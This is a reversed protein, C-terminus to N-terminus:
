NIKKGKALQLFMKQDFHLQVHWGGNDKEWATRIGCHSALFDFMEKLFYFYPSRLYFYGTNAIIEKMVYNQNGIVVQTEWHRILSPVFITLSFLFSNQDLRRKFNTGYKLWLYFVSSSPMLHYMHTKITLLPVVFYWVSFLYQVPPEQRNRDLLRISLGTVRKNQEAM